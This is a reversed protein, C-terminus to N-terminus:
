DTCGVVKGDALSSRGNPPDYKPDGGAGHIGVYSGGNELWTKFADRQEPTLTDGSNNNWIVLKFKSLQEKNMVAGNETVFYPYGREHAMAALAAVSGQIGAEDRFGNTKSYILVAGSKLDAPLVPPEKDYTPTVFGGGGRGRGGAAGAGGPAGPVAPVQALAAFSAVALSCGVWLKLGAKM